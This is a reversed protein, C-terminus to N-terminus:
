GEVRVSQTTVGDALGLWSQSKDNEGRVNELGHRTACDHELHNWNQVRRNIAVLHYANLSGKYRGVHSRWACYSHCFVKYRVVQM